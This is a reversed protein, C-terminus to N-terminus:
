LAFEFFVAVESASPRGSVRLTHGVRGQLEVAPTLSYTFGLDASLNHDRFKLTSEDAVEVGVSFRKTVEYKALAGLQLTNNDSRLERQVGILGRLGLGGWHAGVILPVTLQYDNSGLGRTGTPLTISPATTIGVHGDEDGIPLLEWKLGLETDLVGWSMGSVKGFGVTVSGELGPRLPATMDLAPGELRKGDLSKTYQAQLKIEVSTAASLDPIKYPSAAAPGALALALLLAAFREIHPMPM